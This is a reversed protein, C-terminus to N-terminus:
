PAKLELSRVRMRKWMDSKEEGDNLWDYGMMFLKKGNPSFALIPCHSATGGYTSHPFSNLSLNAWTSTSTSSAVTPPILLYETPCHYRHSEFILESSQVDILNNKIIKENLESDSDLCKTQARNANEEGNEEMYTITKKLEEPIRSAKLSSRMANITYDISDITYKHILDLKAQRPMKKFKVARMEAPSINRPHDVEVVAGTATSVAFQPNMLCYPSSSVRVCSWVVEHSPTNDYGYAPQKKSDVPRIEGSYMFSSQSMSLGEMNRGDSGRLQILISKSSAPEPIEVICQVRSWIPFNNANWISRANRYAFAASDLSDEKKAFRENKFFRYEGTLINIEILEPDPPVRGDQEFECMGFTINKSDDSINVVQPLTVMTELMEFYEYESTLTWLACVIPPASPHLTIIQGRLIRLCRGDKLLSYEKSNIMEPFFKGLEVARDLQTSNDADAKTRAKRLADDLGDINYLQKSSYRVFGDGLHCKYFSLLESNSYTLITAICEGDEDECISVGELFSLEYSEDFPRKVKPAHLLGNMMIDAAIDAATNDKVNGQKNLSIAAIEALSPPCSLSGPVHETWAPTDAPTNTPFSVKPVNSATDNPACLKKPAPESCLFFSM